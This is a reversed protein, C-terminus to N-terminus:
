RGLPIMYAAAISVGKNKLEAGGGLNSVLNTMGIYYRADVMLRAKGMPFSVGGGLNIGFDTSAVTTGLATNCDETVGGSEVNCSAKFALQGGAMVYPALKSGSMAFEYGLSVPIEIVNVKATGSPNNYTAGRMSYLAGVRLFLNPSLVRQGQVGLAIGTRTGVDTASSGGFTAFNLGVVPGWQMAGSKQARAAAPALVLGAVVLGVLGTRGVGM